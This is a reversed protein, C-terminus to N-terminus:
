RICVCYMTCLSRTTTKKSSMRQRSHTRSSSVREDALLDMTSVVGVRTSSMSHIASRMESRRGVGRQESDLGVDGEVLCCATIQTFNVFIGDGDIGNAPKRQPFVRSCGHREYSYWVRSISYAFFSYRIFFLISGILQHRKKLIGKTVEFTSQFM